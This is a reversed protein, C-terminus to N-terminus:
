KKCDVTKIFDQCADLKLRILFIQKKQKLKKMIDIKEIKNKLDRSDYM